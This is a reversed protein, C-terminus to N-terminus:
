NSKEAETAAPEPTEPKDGAAESEKTLSVPLAATEERKTSRGGFSAGDKLLKRM